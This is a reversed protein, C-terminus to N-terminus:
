EGAGGRGRLCQLRRPQGCVGHRGLLRRPQGCAGSCGQLRRPQVGARPVPAGRP